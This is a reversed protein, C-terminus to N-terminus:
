IPLTYSNQQRAVMGETELQRLQTKVRDTAHESLKQQMKPLSLRSHEILAKLIAGRIQRDSGAFKSQRTYTSSTRGVNGVTKKLYSGYDMLAYYWDRPNLTDLTAIIFPWLEADTVPSKNPFFHHIYVTRVNTEILPTPVNYAFALVASATYPGIGPLSCLQVETSPVSSQYNTHLEVACQHLMKARRNYGLGQWHQLVAGLPATALTTVDPFREMFAEYKPIVRDVQTQQLMIESVLIAYPDTTQRWPLTHRGHTRYFDRVTTVFKKKTIM